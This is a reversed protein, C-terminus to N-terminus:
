KRNTRRNFLQRGSRSRPALSNTQPSVASAPKWKAKARCKSQREADTMACDGIPQRGPSRGPSKALIRRLLLLDDEELFLRPVEVSYAPPDGENGADAWAKHARYHSKGGQWDEASLQNPSGEQWVGSGRRQWAMQRRIERLELRRVTHAYDALDETTGRWFTTEGVLQREFGEPRFRGSDRITEWPAIPRWGAAEYAARYAFPPRGPPPLLEEARLRRALPISRIAEPQKDIGFKVRNWYKRANYRL